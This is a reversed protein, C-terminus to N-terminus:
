EKNNENEETDQVGEGSETNNIDQFHKKFKKLATPAALFYSYPAQGKEVDLKRQDPKLTKIVTNFDENSSLVQLLNNSYSFFYWVNDSLELYLNFKDGSRKKIVEFYGKTIRNVYEKGCMGVGILTDSIYSRTKPNWKLKVDNLFLTHELEKPMKKFKGLSYESFLENAKSEGVLEYMGKVFSNRTLDVPELGGINNIDKTFIDM